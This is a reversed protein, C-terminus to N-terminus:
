RGARPSTSWEDLEDTDGVSFFSLMAVFFALRRKDRCRPDNIKLQGWWTDDIAPTKM